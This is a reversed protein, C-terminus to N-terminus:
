NRPLMIQEFLKDRVQTGMAGIENVLQTSRQYWVIIIPEDRMKYTKMCSYFEACFGKDMLYNPEKNKMKIEKKSNVQIGYIKQNM